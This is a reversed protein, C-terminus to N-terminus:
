PASPSPAKSPRELPFRKELIDQAAQLVLYFASLMVVVGVLPLIWWLDFELFRTYQLTHGIMGGWSSEDPGGWWSYYQYALISMMGIVAVYKLSAVACPLTNRTGAIVLGKYRAIGTETPRKARYTEDMKRTRRLVVLAVPAWTVLVTSLVITWSWHEPSMRVLLAMYIIVVIPFVLFCEAVLIVPYNFKGFPLTLIAVGFGIAMSLVVVALIQLFPDRSGILFQSVPDPEDSPQDYDVVFPEGVMPGVLALIAMAVFLILGVIGTVNRLYASAFWKVESLLGGFQPGGAGSSPPQALETQQSQLQKPASRSSRLALLSFFLDIIFGSVLVILLVFFVCVDALTFDLNFLSALIRYGLGDINWFAEIFLVFSMILAVNLKLSPMVSVICESFSLKRPNGGPVEDASSRSIQSIGQWAILAFGGFTCITLIIIPFTRHKLDDFVHEAWSMESYNMSPGFGWGIDFRQIIQVFFLIAFFVIPVTWPIFLASQLVTKGFRNKIRWIAYAAILGLLLSFVLTLGFLMLTRPFSDDIVDAVPRHSALSFLDFAGNGTLMDGIYYFYQVLLSENFHLKEVYYGPSIAGKPVYGDEGVGVRFFLFEVTLVLLLVILLSITKRVVLGIAGKWLSGM